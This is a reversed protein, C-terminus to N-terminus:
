KGAARVTSLSWSFPYGFYLVHSFCTPWLNWIQNIIVDTLNEKMASHQKMQTPHVTSPFPNLSEEWTIKVLPFLHLAAIETSSLATSPFRSTGGRQESLQVSYYFAKFTFNGLTHNCTSNLKVQFSVYKLNQTSQGYPNQSYNLLTRSQGFHDM